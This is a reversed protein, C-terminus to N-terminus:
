RYRIRPDVFAYLLDVVLNSTMILMAAYMVMTMIVNFDRDLVAQFTYQGLGPLSTIRELIISGGLLASMLVGAITLIPIMANKIAHRMLVTREQLGKARATRIYDQRLVELMASRTMRMLQASGGISLVLTAPLIQRAARWPDEWIPVYGFPPAYRWLIAPILMLLTLTFFEPLSQGFVSFTRVGYDFWRDQFVAAIIGSLTGFIITFTFASAVISLTVPFRAKLEGQISVGGLLAKGPDGRLMGGLWQLYRQAVPKDLGTSKHFADIDAQDAENGLLVLAMDGPILNVAFFTIASTVLLVPVFFLLRRMAYQRM